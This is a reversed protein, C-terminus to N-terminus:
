RLWNACRVLFTVRWNKTVSKTNKNNLHQQTHNKYLRRAVCFWVFVVSLFLIAMSLTPQIQECHFCTQVNGYPGIDNGNREYAVTLLSFQRIDGYIPIISVASHQCGKGVIPLRTPQLKDTLPQNHNIAEKLKADSITITVSSM